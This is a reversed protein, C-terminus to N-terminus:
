LNFDLHVGFYASIGPIGYGYVEEYRKDLLNNIRTYLEAFNTVRYSAAVNILQYAGLQLRSGSSFNKDDKKGVYILEVNCQLDAIPSYDVTFAAKNRPRRILVKDYDAPVTGKDIADLYTYNASIGFNDFPAFRIFSEVGDFNAKNINISKFLADTGLMDKLRSHFWTVGISAKSVPIMQEIGVDVSNSQEPQLDKNGYVPDFLETLSPAKFGKSFLAKLKTGTSKIFWVPAIKYTFISGFQSHNDNRAGLTLFVSGDVSLKYQIFYSNIISKSDPLISNWEGWASNSLFTSAADQVEYEYGATASMLENIRFNIQYDIKERRGDYISTSSSANNVSFDYKYKRLNRGFTGGLKMDLGIETISYISQLRTAFEELDFTYTPDDGFRGGFQDMDTKAKTFKGNLAFQLSSLPTYDLKGAFTSNRSGDRESNGYATSASSFGESQETGASIMMGLPGAKKALSIRNSFTNFKGAESTISITPAEEASKTIINIVGGMAESGYSASQAGRIVEIRKISNVPINAFDTINAPDSTMNQQIGDIIVLVHGADQGRLMVTAVQGPGGVQYFELGPVSKLVEYVSVNASKKIDADTIVTISSASERLPANVRDASVIVTDPFNYTDPKKVTQPKVNHAIILVLSLALFLHKM